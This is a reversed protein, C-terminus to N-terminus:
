NMECGRVDTRAMDKDGNSKRRSIGAAVYKQSPVLWEGTPFRIPFVTGSLRHCM